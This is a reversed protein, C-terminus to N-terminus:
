AKEEPLREMHEKEELFTQVQTVHKRFKRPAIRNEFLEDIEAPTRCAIEPLV